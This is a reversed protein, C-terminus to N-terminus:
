KATKPRRSSPIEGAIPRAITAIWPLDDLALGLDGPRPALLPFGDHASRFAPPYIAFTVNTRLDGSTAETTSTGSVEIGSIAPRRLRSDSVSSKGKHHLTPDKCRLVDVSRM